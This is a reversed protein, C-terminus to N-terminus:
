CRSLRDLLAGLPDSPKSLGALGELAKGLTVQEVIEADGKLGRRAEEVIRQVEGQDFWIGKCEGCLDLTVDGARATRMQKDCRPCLRTGSLEVPAAPVTPENLVRRSLATSPFLASLENGDFWLGRCQSCSDIELGTTRDAMAVMPEHRCAPCQLSPKMVEM